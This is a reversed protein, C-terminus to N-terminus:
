RTRGDLGYLLKLLLVTVCTLAMEPPINDGVQYALAKGHENTAVASLSPHLTLPVALKNALAKIMSYFGAVPSPSRTKYNFSLIAMSPIRLANLTRALIHPVNAEPILIKYSSYLRKALRSALVHLTLAKPAHQFTFM